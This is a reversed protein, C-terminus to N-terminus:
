ITYPVNYVHYGHATCVLRDNVTYFLLVRRKLVREIAKADVIHPVAEAVNIPEGSVSLAYCVAEGNSRSIYCGEEPSSTVAVVDLLYLQADHDKSLMVVAGGSAERQAISLAVELGDSSPPDTSVHEFQFVNRVLGVYFRKANADLGFRSRVDISM